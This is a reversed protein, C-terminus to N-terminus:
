VSEVVFDQSEDNIVTPKEGDTLIEPVKIDTVGVYFKQLEEPMKLDVYQVKAHSPVKLPQHLAGVEIGNGGLYANALAERNLAARNENERAGKNEECSSVGVSM